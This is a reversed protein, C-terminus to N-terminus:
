LGPELAVALRRPPVREQGLHLAQHQPCPQHSQDLRVIGLGAVAAPGDPQLAHQADVQQLVPEIQGVQGVQGAFLRQVVRQCQAGERADVQPALRYGVGGRQALEAMQQLVLIQALGDEALDAAHQLLPAQLEVCAGDSAVMM